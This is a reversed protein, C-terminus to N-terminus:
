FMRIGEAETHQHGKTVLNQAWLCFVDIRHPMLLPVGALTHNNSFDLFFLIAPRQIKM